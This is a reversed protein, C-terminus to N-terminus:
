TYFFSGERLRLSKTQAQQSQIGDGNSNRPVQLRILDKQSLLMSNRVDNAFIENIGM